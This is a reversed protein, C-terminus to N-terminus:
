AIAAQLDGNRDNVLDSLAVVNMPYRKSYIRHPFRFFSCRMICRVIWLVCM